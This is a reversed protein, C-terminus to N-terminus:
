AAEAQKAYEMAYGTGWVTRISLGAPALKKRLRWVYVELMKEPAETPVGGYLKSFIREREAPMPMADVLISAIEAERPTLRIIEGGAMLKNTELSVLPRDANALETNCCPCKM